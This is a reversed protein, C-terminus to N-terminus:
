RGTLTSDLETSQWTIGFDETRDLVPKELPSAGSPGFGHLLWATPGVATLKQAKETLKQWTRGGDRTLLLNGARTGNAGLTAIGTRAWGTQADVFRVQVIAAADRDDARYIEAWTAGGDNTALVLQLPSLGWKIWWGGAAVGDTASTMQISYLPTGVPSVSNGAGNGASSGADTYVEQWHRGGDATRLIAYGKPGLTTIFGHEADTFSIGGTAQYGDPLPRAEWTHGSDTSALLVARLKHQNPDGVGGEVNFPKVIYGVEPTPFITNGGWVEFLGPPLSPEILNWHRGGDRTTYLVPCVDACRGFGKAFGNQADQFRVQQLSATPYQFVKAWHLGGDDTRYIRAESDVAFGTQPTALADDTLTVPPMTHGPVLGSSVPGDPTPRAPLQDPPPSNEIPAQATPALTPAPPAKESCGVLLLALLTTITLYRM